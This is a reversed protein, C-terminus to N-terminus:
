QLSQLPGQVLGPGGSFATLAGPENARVMGSAVVPLRWGETELLVHVTTRARQSGAKEGLLQWSKHVGLRLNAEAMLVGPAWARLLM